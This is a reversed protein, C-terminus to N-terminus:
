KALRFGFDAQKRDRQYRRRNTNRCNSEEYKYSGGRLAAANCDGKRAARGNSAAGNYSKSYCDATWGWVNGNMDKLGLENGTKSGVKKTSGGANGSYWAVGALANSGAYSTSKGKTGGKAAFEWEAESPLRYKIGTQQKLKDIFDLVEHHSVNSVPCSPCNKNPSPNSGMVTEWQAQTVEYRSLSFSAVQVQHAPQENSSCKPDQDPSCGMEFSGGTIRVMNQGIEKLATPIVKTKGAKRAKMYAAKADAAYRGNPFAALYDEYAKTTGLAEAKEWALDDPSAVPPTPTPEKKPPATPTTSSGTEPKPKNSTSSGGKKTSASNNKSSKKEKEPINDSKKPDEVAPELTADMPTGLFGIATSDGMNGTSTQDSGGTSLMGNLIYVVVLLGMSAALILPWNQKKKEPLPTALAPPNSDKITEALITKRKAIPAEPVPIDMESVVITQKEEKGLVETEEGVLPVDEIAVKKPKQGKLISWIQAVSKLRQAPDVVICKEIVEKFPQPITNITAPLKASRIQQIIDARADVSNANKHTTYFPIKGTFLEFLIVGLSWLDANERVDKGAMQEPAGYALTGAVVSNVIFSKDNANFEKSLGFDTIKPIYEQSKTRHAILINASKMDQHIVKHKHLHALGRIIEKAITTRQKETLQKKTILQSLNGVEYYQLVGYDYVGHPQNFRYCVEYNAINRHPPIKAAIEVEKKLSLNEQGPHVEAIKLAVWRDYTDDFAKYVKGFGGGGLYDDPVKYKYRELFEEFTM